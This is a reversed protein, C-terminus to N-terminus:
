IFNDETLFKKISNNLIEKSLPKTLFDECGAAIAMMKDEPSTYATQAVIPLDPRFKKISRTAEFGSMVPMKLDMFVLDIASNNKCIDVAEQGNIAHLVTCKLNLKELLLIEIFLFNMDEDEAVLFTLTNEIRDLDMKSGAYKYPIGFKFFTM